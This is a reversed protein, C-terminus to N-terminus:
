SSDNCEAEKECGTWRSVVAPSVVVGECCLNADPLLLRVVNGGPGGTTM